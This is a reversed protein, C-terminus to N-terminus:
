VSVFEFQAFVNTPGVAMAIYATMYLGIQLYDGASCTQRVSGSLIPYQTGSSTSAGAINRMSVGNRVVYNAADSVVGLTFLNFISMRYDGAIPCNFRSTAITTLSLPDSPVTDYPIYTQGTPTYAFNRYMEAKILGPGNAHWASGDGWWTVGYHTDFVQQGLVGTFSPPGGAITPELKGAQAQALLWLTLADAM